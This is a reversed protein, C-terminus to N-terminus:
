TNMCTHTHTYTCIHIHHRNLFYNHIYTHIHTHIYTHIYSHKDVKTNWVRVEVSNCASAMIHTHIPHYRLCWPTSLHGLLKCVLEINAESMGIVYIRIHHDCHSVAIETGNWNTVICATSIRSTPSCVYMCVHMCVYMCYMCVYVCVCMCVYMCAYMCVYTCVYM